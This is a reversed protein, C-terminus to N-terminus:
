LHKNAPHVYEMGAGKDSIRVRFNEPVGKPRAFTKIGTQHILQRAQTESMFEKYPKLFEQARNFVRISEQMPPSLHRYTDVLKSELKGAQKLQGM